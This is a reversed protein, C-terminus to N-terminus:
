LLRRRFNRTTSQYTRVLLGVGIGVGLCIGLGLGVGVRVGANFWTLEGDEGEMYETQNWHLSNENEYEYENESKYPGYESEQLSLRDPVDKRSETAEGEPIPDLAGKRGQKRRVSIQLTKTLIVPQGVFSGAVYVEIMPPMSDSGAIQKGKLVRSGGSVMSECKMSWREVDNNKLKGNENKCMELVGSLILDDGDFVEFKVSGTLRISDTSVFTAEEFKKDVRNRRLRCASGTSDLTCRKNNVELITDPDLPIHTLTLYEPTYGDVMFNSIRVYFVRIDFWALLPKTYPQYTPHKIIQLNNKTTTGNSNEM